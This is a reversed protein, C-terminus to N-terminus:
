KLENLLPFLENLSNNWTMDIDFDDNNSNSFSQYFEDINPSGLSEYGYDNSSVVSKVDDSQLHQNHQPDSTVSSIPSILERVLPTDAILYKSEVENDEEDDSVECIIEEISEAIPMTDSEPYMTVTICNTKQDYTGYLKNTNSTKDIKAAVVDPIEEKVEVKIDATGTSNATLPGGINQSPELLKAPPGVVPEPLRKATGGHTADPQGGKRLGDELETTVDALLSEALEELKGLDIDELLDQLSPL